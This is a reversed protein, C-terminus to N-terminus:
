PISLNKVTVAKFSSKFTDKQTEYVLLKSLQIPVQFSMQLTRDFTKIKKKRSSCCKETDLSIM